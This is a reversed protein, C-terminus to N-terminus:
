RRGSCFDMIDNADMSGPFGDRMALSLADLTVQHFTPFGKDLLAANVMQNAIGDHLSQVSNFGTRRLKRLVSNCWNMPRCRHIFVTSSHLVKMLSIEADLLPVCADDEQLHFSFDISISPDRVVSTIAESMVMLSKPFLTTYNSNRLSENIRNEYYQQCFIASDKVGVMRLKHTVTEYWGECASEDQFKAKSAQYVAFQLLETSHVPDELRLDRLQNAISTTGSGSTHQNPYNNQDRNNRGNEQGAQTLDDPAADNLAEEEPEEPHELMAMMGYTNNGDGQNDPQHGLSPDDELQNPNILDWAEEASLVRDGYDMTFGVRGNTQDSCANIAEEIHTSLPTADSGGTENVDIVKHNDNQKMSTENATDESVHLRAKGDQKEESENPEQKNKDGQKTGCSQRRNTKREESVALIVRSKMTDLTVAYPNSQGLQLMKDMDSRTEKMHALMPILRTMIKNKYSLDWKEKSPANTPKLYDALTAGSGLDDQIIEVMIGAGFPLGGSLEALNDYKHGLDDIWATTDAEAPQTFSLSKRTQLLFWMLEDREQGFNGSLIITKILKLMQVVDGDKMAGEYGSTALASQKTSEELQGHIMNAFTLSAKKHSEYDKTQAEMAKTVRIEETKKAAECPDGATNKFRAPDCKATLFDSEVSRTMSSIDRSLRPQLIRNAYSALGKKLEKLEKSTSETTIIKGRIEKIDSDGEFTAGNQQKSRTGRGKGRGKGRGRGGGRGSMTAPNPNSSPKTEAM